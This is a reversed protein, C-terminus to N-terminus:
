GGAHDRFLDADRVYAQLVDMSKHRSVDRMKFISAGRRAASTLFGSRLSHGSFDAVNLGLRGAYSKVVDAV